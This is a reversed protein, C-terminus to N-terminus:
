RIPGGPCASRVFPPRTCLLRVITACQLMVLPMGINTGLWSAQFVVAFAVISGFHILGSHSQLSGDIFGREMLLQVALTILVLGVGYLLVDWRFFVSGVVVYSPIAVM